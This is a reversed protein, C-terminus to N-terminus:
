DQTAETNGKGEPEDLEKLAEEHTLTMDGSHEIAALRPHIYPAAKEAAWMRREGDENENRLVILMYTLPTIGEAAAEQAILASRKNPSGPKRGSGERKGGKAM